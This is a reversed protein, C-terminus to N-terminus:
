RTTPVARVVTEERGYTSVYIVPLDRLAPIDQMLEIGDKGPQRHGSM